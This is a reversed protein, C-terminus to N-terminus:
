DGVPRADIKRLLNSARHACNNVEGVQGLESLREREREREARKVVIM